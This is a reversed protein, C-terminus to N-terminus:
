IIMEGNDIRIYFVLSENNFKTKSVIVNTFSEYEKKLQNDIEDIIKKDVVDNYENIEIKGNSYENRTISINNVLTDNPVVYSYSDNVMNIKKYNSPQYLSFDNNFNGKQYVLDWSINSYRKKNNNFINWFTAAIILIFGLGFLIYSIKKM